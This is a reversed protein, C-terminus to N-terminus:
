DELESFHTYPLLPVQIPRRLLAALTSMYGAADDDEPNALDMRETREAALLFIHAIGLYKPDLNELLMPEGTKKDTLYDIAIIRRLSAIRLREDRRKIREDAMQRASEKQEREFIERDHQNVRDQWGFNTSYNKLTNLAPSKAWLQGLELRLRELSRTRGMELYVIYADRAQKPESAYTRTILLPRRDVIEDTM